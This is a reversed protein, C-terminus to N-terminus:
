SWKLGRTPYNFLYHEYPEIRLGAPRQSGEYIGLARNCGQCLLGRPHKKAGKTENPVIVGNISEYHDAQEGHASRGQGRETLLVVSCIACKGGQLSRCFATLEASFGTASKRDAVRM